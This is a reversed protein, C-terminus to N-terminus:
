FEVLSRNFDLDKFSVQDDVKWAKSITSQFAGRNVEKDAVVLVALCKKSKEISLLVEEGPVLVEQKEEETLRLGEYLNSLEEAM